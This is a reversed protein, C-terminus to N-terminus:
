QNLLENFKKLNDFENSHRYELRKNRIFLIGVGLFGIRMTLEWLGVTTLGKHKDKFNIATKFMGNKIDVINDKSLKWSKTIKGEAFAGSKSFIIKEGDTSALGDWSGFDGSDILKFIAYDMFGCASIKIIEFNKDYFESHLNIADKHNIIVKGM